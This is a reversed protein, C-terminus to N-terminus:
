PNEPPKKADDLTKLLRDRWETGLILPVLERLITADENLMIAKGGGAEAISKFEGMLRNYGTTDIVHVTGKANKRWDDVMTVTKKVGDNQPHPPADGILIIVKHGAVRWGGHTMAEALGDFVAEPIDGGGAARLEGLAKKFAETDATLPFLKTAYAFEAPDFQKLDRYSVLGFRSSPVFRRIVDCLERSQQRLRLLVDAMSDTCDIVLCVDLGLREYRKMADNFRAEVAEEPTPQYVRMDRIDKKAITLRGLKSDVIFLQEVLQGTAKFTGTEVSDQKKGEGMGVSTIAVTPVHLIGYQTELTFIPNMLDGKVQSGDTLAVEVRVPGGEALAKNLSALLTLAEANQPHFVLIEHLESRAEDKLGQAVCWRVLELRANVTRASLANLKERYLKRADRKWTVQAIETRNFEQLGGVTRISVSGTTEKVIDGSFRRGDKLVIEDAQLSGALLALLASLIAFLRM